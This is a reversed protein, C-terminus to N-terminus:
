AHGPMLTTAEPQALMVWPQLESLLQEQHLKPVHLAIYGDFRVLLISGHNTGLKQHFQQKFDLLATVSLEHKIAGPGQEFVIYSRITESM